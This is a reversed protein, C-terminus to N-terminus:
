LEEAVRRESVQTIFSNKNQRKSKKDNGINNLLTTWKALVFQEYDEFYKLIKQDTCQQIM